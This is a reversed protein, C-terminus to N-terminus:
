SIEKFVPAIQNLQAVTIDGYRLVRPEGSLNIITSSKTTGQAGGELIYDVKSGVQNLALKMDVLVGDAQGSLNASTMTVPIDLHRMMGRWVPNSLCGMAITSGGRVMKDPANEKKPLVINLPGPWYADVFAQVLGPDAATAYEKWDNPNLFFLTLASTAPRNKIAFARDIAEDAWPNLTLALNTDSPAIIVGGKSVCQAALAFNQENPELLKEDQAM